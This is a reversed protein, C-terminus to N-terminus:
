DNAPPRPPLKGGVHGLWMWIDLQSATRMNRQVWGMKTLKFPRESNEETHETITFRGNTMHNYVEKAEARIADNVLISLWLTMPWDDMEKKVIAWQADNDLLRGDRFMALQAFRYFRYAAYKGFVEIKGAYPLFEKEHHLWMRVENQRAQIIKTRHESM